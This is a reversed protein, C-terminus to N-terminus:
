AMADDMMDNAEDDHTVDSVGAGLLGVSGGIDTGM